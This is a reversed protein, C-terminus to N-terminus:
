SSSPENWSLARAYGAAARSFQLMVHSAGCNIDRWFRQLPNGEAMAATGATSFLRNTASVLLETAFACDRAGVATDVATPRGADGVQAAREILLSAAQIESAARTLVEDLSAQSVAPVAPRARAARRRAHDIWSGLAGKAAGLIPAAFSLGSIAELPVFHYPLASDVPTGQHLDDRPFSLEPGVPTEPLVLTHSGTARMGVTSWTPSITYASRPVVFFRLGDPEHAIRALVMAWDSFEVSSIYPWSGAVRWGGRVPVATGLPLLSGVILADRNGEWLVRQGESPLYGAMRGLTAALSAFWATSPCREGLVAVAKVMEGFGGELGGWKGPVFHRAFGAALVAQVVEDSLRQSADAAEAQGTVLDLIAAAKAVLTEVRGGVSAAGTPPTSYHMNTKM